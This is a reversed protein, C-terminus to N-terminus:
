YQIQTTPSFAPQLFGFLTFGNFILSVPPPQASGDPGQHANAVLPTIGLNTPTSGAPLNDILTALNRQFSIRAENILSNTALTTLKLAANTNNYQQDTTGGPLSGGFPATNTVTRPANSYFFRGALTNKSNIVYDGNIVTQDELFV